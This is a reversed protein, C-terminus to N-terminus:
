GPRIMVRDPDEDEGADNGLGTHEHLKGTVTVWLAKLAVFPLYLGFVVVVAGSILISMWIWFFLTCAIRAAIGPRSPPSSPSVVM